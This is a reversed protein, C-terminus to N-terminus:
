ALISYRVRDLCHFTNAVGISCTTVAFHPRKIRESNLTQSATRAKERDIHAIGRDFFLVHYATLNNISHRVDTGETTSLM